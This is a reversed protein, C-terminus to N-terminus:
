YESATTSLAELWAGLVMGEYLKCGGQDCTGDNIHKTSCTVL